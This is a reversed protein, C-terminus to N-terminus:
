HFRNNAHIVAADVRVGDVDEYTETKGPRLDVKHMDVLGQCKRRPHPQEGNQLCNRELTLAVSPIRGVPQKMLRFGIGLRGPEAGSAGIAVAERGGLRQHFLRVAGPGIQDDDPGGMLRSIGLDEESADSAGQRDSSMLRHQDRFFGTGSLPPSVTM